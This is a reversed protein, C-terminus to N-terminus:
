VGEGEKKRKTQKGPPAIALNTIVLFGAEFNFGLYKQQKKIKKSRKKKKTTTKKKKKEQADPAKPPDRGSRRRQTCESVDFLFLFTKVV